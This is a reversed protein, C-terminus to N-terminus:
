VRKIGEDESRGERGGERCRRFKSIMAGESQRQDKGVRVGQRVFRSCTAFGRVVLGEQERESM